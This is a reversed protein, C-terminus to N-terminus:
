RDRSSYRRFNNTRYFVDLDQTTYSVYDICEGSRIHDARQPPADLTFNGRDRDPTVDSIATRDKFLNLGQVISLERM